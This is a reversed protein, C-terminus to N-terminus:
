SMAFFQNSKPSKSRIKLTVATSFYRNERFVSNCTSTEHKTRNITKNDDKNTNLIAPHTAFLTSGSQVSCETADLRPRCQKSLGTKRFVYHIYLIKNM